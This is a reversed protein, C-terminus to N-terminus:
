MMSVALDVSLEIAAGGWRGGLHGSLDVTELTM